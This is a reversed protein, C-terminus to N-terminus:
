QSGSLVWSQSGGCLVFADTLPYSFGTLCTFPILCEATLHQPDCVSNSLYCSFPTYLFIMYVYIIYILNKGM